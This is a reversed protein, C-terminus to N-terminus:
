LRRKFFRELEASSFTLVTPRGHPCNHPHKLERAAELLAQIEEQSLPDGRMVSRRCAASHFRELIAERARPRADAAAGEGLLFSEVLAAPRARNLVAPVGQVAIAGGGFDDVLFGEEALADRAELLYAKDPATLEMVEPLLLRQVDVKREGHRRELQEYLVREHLAHQDVVLMGDEVELVLYLDLLQLFRPRDLDRFPHQRAEAVSGSEMRQDSSRAIERLGPLLPAAPVARGFLDAPLDPFGSRAAPLEGGVSLGAANVRPARGELASRAADHLLGCVKRSDRFRVEAKTPHVNVDVESPPLSLQLFYVPFRRPMLYPRYAQRLAHGVSKDRALRGNVFVLELTSDRRAADPDGVWGTVRYDGRAVDVELLDGALTRGFTRGIRERLSEGGPLRLVDRGEVRLTFDVDPHVLALRSLLDQIRAKEAQPTRLFRRRAPTNYFLDRVEVTTGAACGCPRVPTAAGGHCTVEYGSEADPQRSEIRARAVSGISALAEGRFGLSAIHELDEARGLKSTAHGVFALGLDEESLGGGDDHVRVLARGGEALEVHIRGAGADLSNEVLEKVVSFPREIVEGAAIQNVVDAPLVRIM